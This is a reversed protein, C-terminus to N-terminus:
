KKQLKAIKMNLKIIWIMLLVICIIAIVLLVSLVAVVVVLGDGSDNSTDEVKSGTFVNKYNNCHCLASYLGYSHNTAINTVNIEPYTPIHVRVDDTIAQKDLSPFM